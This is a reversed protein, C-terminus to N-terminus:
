LARKALAVCRQRPQAVLEARRAAVGLRLHAFAVRLDRLQNADRHLPHRGAVPAKPGPSPRIRTSASAFLLRLAFGPAFGRAIPSLAFSVSSVNGHVFRSNDITVTFSM